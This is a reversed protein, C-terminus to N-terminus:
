ASSQRSAPSGTGVSAPLSITSTSAAYRFRTRLPLITLVSKALSGVPSDAGSQLAGPENEASLAATVHHKAAALGICPTDYGIVFLEPGAREAADGGVGAEDNLLEDRQQSVSRTNARRALVGPHNLGLERQRGKRASGGRQWFAALTPPQTM